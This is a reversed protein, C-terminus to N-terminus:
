GAVMGFSRDSCVLAVVLKSLILLGTCCSVKAGPIFTSSYSHQRAHSHVCSMMLEIMSIIPFASGANREASRTKTAPSGRGTWAISMVSRPIPFSTLDQGPRVVIAIWPVRLRPLVTNGV